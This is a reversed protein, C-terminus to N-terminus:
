NMARIKNAQARPMYRHPNSKAEIMYQLELYAVLSVNRTTLNLNM